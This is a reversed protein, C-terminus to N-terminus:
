VASDNLWIFNHYLCAYLNYSRALMNDNDVLTTFTDAHIIVTGTLVIDIDILLNYYYAPMTYNKGLFWEM